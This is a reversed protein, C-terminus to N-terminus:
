SSQFFCYRYFCICNFDNDNWEGFEEVSHILWMMLYVASTISIMVGADKLNTMTPSISAIRGSM